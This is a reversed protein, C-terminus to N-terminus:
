GKAKPSTGTEKKLLVEYAERVPAITFFEVFKAVQEQFFRNEESALMAKETAWFTIAMGEGTKPNTMYFAGEFGAQKKCLPLVTKKFLNSADNIKGKKLQMRLIRAFM